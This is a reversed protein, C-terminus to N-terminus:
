KADGVTSAGVQKKGGAGLGSLASRQESEARIIKLMLESGARDVERDDGTVRMLRQEVAYRMTQLQRVTAMRAIRPDCCHLLFHSRIDKWNWQAGLLLRSCQVMAISLPTRVDPTLVGERKRPDRIERIYTVAAMKFLAEESMRELNEKVFVEVPAIRKVLACGVCDVGRISFATKHADKKRQSSTGSLASVSEDDSVAGAGFAAQAFMAADGSSARPKKPRKKRPESADDSALEDFGDDESAARRKRSGKDSGESFLESEGDANKRFSTLELALASLAEYRPADDKGADSRPGRRTPPQAGGFGAARQWLPHTQRLQNTSTQQGAATPPAGSGESQASPSGPHHITTM